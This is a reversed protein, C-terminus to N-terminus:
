SEGSLDDDAEAEKYGSWEVFATVHSVIDGQTIFLERMIVRGTSNAPLGLCTALDADFVTLTGRPDGPRLSYEQGDIRAYVAETYKLLLDMNSEFEVNFQQGKAARDPRAQLARVVAYDAARYRVFIQPDTWRPVPLDLHTAEAIEGRRKEIYGLISDPDVNRVPVDPQTTTDDNM